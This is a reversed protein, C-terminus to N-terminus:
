YSQPQGYQLHKGNNNGCGCIEKQIFDIRHRKIRTVLNIVTSQSDYRYLRGIQTTNPVITELIENAIVISHIKNHHARYEIPRNMGMSNFSYAQLSIAQNSRGQLNPRYRSHAAYQSIAGGLSHGILFLEDADDAMDISCDRSPSMCALVLATVEASYEFICSKEILQNLSAVWDAIREPDTGPIGLANDDFLSIAQVSEQLSIVGGAVFGITYGLGM